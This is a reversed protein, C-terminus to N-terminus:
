VFIYNKQKTEKKRGSTAVSTSQAYLVLKSVTQKNTKNEALGQHSAGKILVRRFLPGCPLTLLSPLVPRSRVFSGLDYCRTDGTENEM